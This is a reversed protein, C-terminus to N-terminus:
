NNLPVTEPIDTEFLEPRDQYMSADGQVVDGDSQEIPKLVHEEQARTQLNVAQADSLQVHRNIPANGAATMNEQLGATEYDLTATIWAELDQQRNPGNFSSVSKERIVNDKDDTILFKDATEKLQYKSKPQSIVNDNSRSKERKEHRVVNKGYGSGILQDKTKQAELGDILSRYKFGTTSQRSTPYNEQFASFTNVNREERPQKTVVANHAERLTTEYIPDVAQKTNYSTSAGTSRQNQRQNQEVRVQEKRQALRANMQKTAKTASIPDTNRQINSQAMHTRQAVKRAYNDDRFISVKQARSGGNSRGNNSSPFNPDNVNALSQPGTVPLTENTRTSYNKLEGQNITRMPVLTVGIVRGNIRDNLSYLVYDGKELYEHAVRRRWPALIAPVMGKTKMTLRTTDYTAAVLAAPRMRWGWAVTNMGAASFSDLQGPILFNRFHVDEPGMGPFRYCRYITPAAPWNYQMPKDWAGWECNDPNNINALQDVVAYNLGGNLAAYHQASFGAGGDGAWLKRDIPRMTAGLRVQTANSVLDALPYPKDDPWKIATDPTCLIMYDPMCSVYDLLAYPNLFIMNSGSAFYNGLEYNGTWNSEYAKSLLTLESPSWGFMHAMCNQYIVDFSTLGIGPNKSFFYQAHRGARTTGLLRNSYGDATISCAFMAWSRGLSMCQQLVRGFDYIENTGMRLLEAADAMRNPLSLVPRLYEVATQDVPISAESTNTWMGDVLTPIASNNRGNPIGAYQSSPQAFCMAAALEFAARLDAQSGTLTAFKDAFAIIDEPDLAGQLQKMAPGVSAWNTYFKSGTHVIINDVGVTNWRNTLHRATNNPGVTCKQYPWKGAYRQVYLLDKYNLNNADVFFIEGKILKHMNQMIFDEGGIAANLVGPVLDGPTREDGVDQLHMKPVVPWNAAGVPTFNVLTGAPLAALSCNSFFDCWLKFFFNYYSLGPARAILEHIIPYVVQRRGYNINGAQDMVLGSSLHDGVKRSNALKTGILTNAYSSGPENFATIISAPIRANANSAHGRIGTWNIAGLEHGPNNSFVQTVTGCTIQKTQRTIASYFELHQPIHEFRFNNAANLLVNPRNINRMPAYIETSWTVGLKPCRNLVGAQSPLMRVGGLGPIEPVVVVGQLNIEDTATIDTELDKSWMATPLLIPEQGAQPVYTIPQAVLDKLTKGYVNIDLSTNGNSAHMGKNTLQFDIYVNKVKNIILALHNAVLPAPLSLGYFSRRLGTDFVRCPSNKNFILDFLRGRCFTTKRQVFIHPSCFLNLGQSNNAWKYVANYLTYLYAKTSWVRKGPALAKFAERVHGVTQLVNNDDNQEPVTSEAIKSEEHVELIVQDQEVCDSSSSTAPAVIVEHVVSNLLREADDVFVPIADPEYFREVRVTETEVIKHVAKCRYIKPIDPRVPKRSFRRRSYTIPIESPKPRGVSVPTMDVEGAEILAALATPARVETSQFGRSVKFSSLERQTPTLLLSRCEFADEISIQAYAMKRDCKSLAPARNHFSQANTNFGCNEGLSQHAISSWTRRSNSARTIAERTAAHQSTYEM